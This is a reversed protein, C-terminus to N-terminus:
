STFYDEILPDQVRRSNALVNGDRRDQEIAPLPSADELGAGTLRKCWEDAAVREVQVAVIDEGEGIAEKAWAAGAIGYPTNTGKITLIDVDAAESERGKVRNGAQSVQASGATVRDESGTESGKVDRQDLIRPDRLDRLGESNLEARLKEIHAVM